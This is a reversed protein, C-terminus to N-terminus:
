ICATVKQKWQLIVSIPIKEKKSVKEQFYAQWRMVLEMKMKWSKKKFSLLMVAASKGSCAYRRRSKRGVRM